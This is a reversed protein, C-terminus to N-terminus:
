QMVLLMTMIAAISCVISLSSIASALGVDGDLEATFAPAASTIPSFVLVALTRSIEADFPLVYWCVLALLIAVGYRVVMIRLVSRLQTRDGALKFGVGVMLMALFANANGITQAFTIVAGPLRIQALNLVTLIVYCDFPISSVLAKGIRKFSFGNHEKILSAIGFSTGLCICANGADFLSTTVMGVPGLFSQVFPLTFNGINYGSVNLIAFAQQEGGARLNMLVALIIYLIGCGMGIGVLSLMSPDIKTGAFSAVLAAPLTIKIVIKSLVKFDDEKFVGVTRLVYGLVIIAIYSGARILIDQM